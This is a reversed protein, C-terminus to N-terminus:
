RRCLTLAKRRQSSRWVVRIRHVRRQLPHEIAVTRLGQGIVLVGQLLDDLLQGQQAQPPRFEELVRPEVPARRQADEM